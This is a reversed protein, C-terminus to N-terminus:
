ELLPEILQVLDLIRLDAEGKGKKLNNVCFPCTTVLIEAFAAEDVRRGAINEALEPYASRVGGGGGCCHSTAGHMPMEEFDVSPIANIVQRPPEYVGVHRGLHCPDHYTVKAELPQLDLDKEALYESIHKVEFPVDIFKPYEEKFMRYCGACSFIMLEIGKSKIEEVNMEMQKVIDDESWGIRQMVSGCCTEDVITYNEDLKKLISITANSIDKNRYASTCGVFYGVKANRPEEGLAEPVSESEGYPNGHELINEVIEKHKPLIHGHEVLDARCMEVIDVVNINSPCRRYCDMCTTCQYISEIVSEDAPIDKNLLGYALIVRGRAVSPDWGIDTFVPCVSKCFGCMTCTMMAKKAEVLHKADIYDSM